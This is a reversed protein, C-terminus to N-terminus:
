ISILECGVNQLQLEVYNLKHFYFNTRLWRKAILRSSPGPPSTVIYVLNEM